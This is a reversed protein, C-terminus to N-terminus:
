TNPPSTVGPGLGITDKHTHDNLSVGKDTVFDQAISVGSEGRVQGTVNINGEINVDGTFTTKSCDVTIEGDVTIKWDGTIHICDDGDVRVHKNKNVHLTYSGDPHTQSFTGSPGHIERIREAGPTDDYEKVHGSTTLMVKNHPYEAAYPDAPDCAKEDITYENTQTGTTLPNVDGEKPVSGVILPLQSNQGDLFIGFVQSDLQVGLTNSYGYTGGENIPTVVSAWPLDSNSLLSEDESHIGFIRVKIRGLQKPDKIDVVKGLFWRFDDGYYELFRKPIM